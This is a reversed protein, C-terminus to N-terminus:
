SRRAGSAGCRTPSRQGILDPALLTIGERLLRRAAEAHIEPVFWKIAVSADVVFHAATNPMGTPASM